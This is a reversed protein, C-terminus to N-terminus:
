KRAKAWAINAAQVHTAQAVEVGLTIEPTEITKGGLFMRTGRANYVRVIGDAHRISLPEVTLVATDDVVPVRNM